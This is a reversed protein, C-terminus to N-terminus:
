RLGYHAVIAGVAAAVVVKVVELAVRLTGGRWAQLHRADSALKATRVVEEAIEKAREPNMKDRPDKARMYLTDVAERMTADLVNYSSDPDLHHLAPPKDSIRQKLEGLELKLGRVIADLRHNARLGLNVARLILSRDTERTVDEGNELVDPVIHPRQDNAM